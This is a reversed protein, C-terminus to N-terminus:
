AMSTATPLEKKNLNWGDGMEVHCPARVQKVGNQGGSASSQPAFRKPGCPVREGRKMISTRM